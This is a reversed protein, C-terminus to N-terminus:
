YIREQGTKESAPDTGFPGVNEGSLKHKIFDSGHMLVDTLFRIKSEGMTGSHGEVQFWSQTNEPNNPDKRLGFLVTGWNNGFWFNPLRIEYQTGEDPYHSSGLSGSLIGQGRAAAKDTKKVGKMIKRVLGLWGDIAVIDTIVAKQIKNMHGKDSNYKEEIEEDTNNCQIVRSDISKLRSNYFGLDHDHKKQM